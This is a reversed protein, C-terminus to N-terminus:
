FSMLAEKSLLKWPRRNLPTRETPNEESVGTRVAWQKAEQVHEKGAARAAATSCQVERQMSPCNDHTRTRGM